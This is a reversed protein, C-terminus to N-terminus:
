IAEEHLLPQTRCAELDQLTILDGPEAAGRNALLRAPDGPDGLGTVVLVAESMDENATYYSVTVM